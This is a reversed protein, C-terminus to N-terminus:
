VAVWYIFLTNLHIHSITVLNYSLCYLGIGLVSSKENKCFIWVPEFTLGAEYEVHILLNKDSSFTTAAYSIQGGVEM